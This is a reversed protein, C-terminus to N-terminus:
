HYVTAVPPVAIAPCFLAVYVMLLRAAVSVKQTTMTEAAPQGEGVRVGTMATYLLGIDCFMVTLPLVIQSSTMADFMVSLVLWFWAGGLWLASAALAILVVAVGVRKGLDSGIRSM